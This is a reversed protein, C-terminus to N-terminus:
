ATSTSGVPRQAAPPDGLLTCPVCFLPESCPCCDALGARAAWACSIGVQGRLHRAEDNAHLMESELCEKEVALGEILGVVSETLQQLLEVLSVAAPTTGGGSGSSPVVPATQLRSPHAAAAQQLRANVSSLIRHVQLLRLPVACQMSTHLKYHVIAALAPQGPSCEARVGKQVPQDTGQM